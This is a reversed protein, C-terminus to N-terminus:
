NYLESFSTLISIDPWFLSWLSTLECRDNALYYDHSSWLVIILLRLMMWPHFIWGVVSWWWWWVRIDSDWGFWYRSGRRISPFISDFNFFVHVFFSSFHYLIQFFSEIGKILIQITDFLGCQLNMLIQTWNQRRILLLWLHCGLIWAAWCFM